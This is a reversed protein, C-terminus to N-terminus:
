NQAQFDLLTTQKTGSWHASAISDMVSSVSTAEHNCGRSELFLNVDDLAKIAEAFSKVNPTPDKGVDDDEDFEQVDDDKDFEQEGVDGGLQALFNADWDDGDIDVCVPIEEERHLYETVSCSQESPITKEILYQLEMCEDSVIFPDEDDDQVM